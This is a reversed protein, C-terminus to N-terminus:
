RHLIFSHMTDNKINEENKMPKQSITKLNHFFIQVLDGATWQWQVWRCMIQLIGFVLSSRPGHVTPQADMRLEM